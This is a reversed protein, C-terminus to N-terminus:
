KLYVIKEVVYEYGDGSSRIQFYTEKVDLLSKGAPEYVAKELALLRARLEPPYFHGVMTQDLKIGVSKVKNQDWIRLRNQRNMFFLRKEDKRLGERYTSAPVTLDSVYEILNSLKHVVGLTIGFYQLIRMYEAQTSAAIDIKWRDAESIPARGGRGNGGGRIDGLGSGRGMEMATGDVMELQARVSSVADTTAELADALQPTEVEPFEEVGPPQWDDAIGLPPLDDGIMETVTADITSPAWKIVLTLWMLFMMVVLTGVITITSTLFASVKDYGSVKVPATMVTRNKFSNEFPPFAESM